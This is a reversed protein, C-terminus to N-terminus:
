APRLTAAHLLGAVTAASTRLTGERLGALLADLERWSVKLDETEDPVGHAPTLNTAHFLSVHEDTFGPSVYFGAVFELDGALQTEEALERQAARAPTEGPDILGAPIEWTAHAVAPRRQEVGLVLGDEVALVSVAPAHGVM